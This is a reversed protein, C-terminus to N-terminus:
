RGCSRACAIQSEKATRVQPHVIRADSRQARVVGDIFQPGGVAVEASKRRQIRFVWEDISRINLDAGQDPERV